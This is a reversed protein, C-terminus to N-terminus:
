YQSHWKIFTEAICFMNKKENIEALITMQNLIVYFMWLALIVTQNLIVFVNMLGLHSNSEIYCFCEYSWSSQNLIVFVNMLGVHSNSEIDCLCENSWSPQKIWYWLFMWLVLIATQNLIVFVNMLGVYSNSKIDCFCEYSWSPQKIWYWLFMWLVLMCPKFNATAWEGNALLNWHPGNFIEDWDDM